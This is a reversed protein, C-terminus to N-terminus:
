CVIIDQAAQLFVEDETCTRQNELQCAKHEENDLCLLVLGICLIGKLAHHVVENCGPWHNSGSDEDNCQPHSHEPQFVM